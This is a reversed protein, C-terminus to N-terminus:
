LRLAVASVGPQLSVVNVSKGEQTEFGLLKM